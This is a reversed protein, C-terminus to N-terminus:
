SGISSKKDTAAEPKGKKEAGHGPENKMGKKASMGGPKNRNGADDEKPGAASGGKEDAGQALNSATGGMNNPNAVASKTNAGNDGMTASVKEVYERMEEGATQTGKSEEVEEDTTEDVEEDTAEEVEDDSAEEVEEDTAEFAYGEEEAEDDDGEDDDGAMMKEFEAKLDDLADELDEVRDEVDGEPEEGEEDDGEDDMGLDAMMDDGADGGMAPEAEVEFEDLDFGEEVEEDDSEDVEEDTTEDVEEDTTEDVEEDTTEDVDAEDELLGEYIDRSKEVVIEHFLEQAAEKDENILLELMQEFKNTNSM